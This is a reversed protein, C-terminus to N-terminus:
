GHLWKKNSPAENHLRLLIRKTAWKLKIMSAILSSRNSEESDLAMKNFNILQFQNNSRSSVITTKKLDIISVYRSQLPEEQFTNRTM